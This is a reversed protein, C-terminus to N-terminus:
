SGCHVQLSTCRASSVELHQLWRQGAASYEQGAGEINGCCAQVVLVRAFAAQPLWVM